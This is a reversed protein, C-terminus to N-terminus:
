SFGIYAKLNQRHTRTPPLARVSQEVEQKPPVLRVDLKRLYEATSYMEPHVFDIWEEQKIRSNFISELELSIMVQGEQFIGAAGSPREVGEDVMRALLLEAQQALVGIERRIKDDRIAQAFSARPALAIGL